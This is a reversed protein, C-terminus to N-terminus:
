QISELFANFIAKHVDPFEAIEKNVKEIFDERSVAKKLIYEDIDRFTKTIKDYSAIINDLNQSINMKWSEDGKDKKDKDKKDKDKKDKDEKDKKDKDKKDKDEKDKKDKDKKDKDEKDKKDKDKKDKDKKDKDKKDKDEKDKEKGM